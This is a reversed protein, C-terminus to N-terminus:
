ASGSAVRATPRCIRLALLRRRPTPLYVTAQFSRAAASAAFLGIVVALVPHKSIASRMIQERDAEQFVAFSGICHRGRHNPSDQSFGRPSTLRLGLIELITQVIAAKAVSNATDCYPSTAGFSPCSSWSFYSFAL